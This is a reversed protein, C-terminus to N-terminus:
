YYLRGSTLTTEIDMHKEEIQNVIDKINESCDEVSLLKYLTFTTCSSDPM